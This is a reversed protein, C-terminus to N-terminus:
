EKIKIQTTLRITTKSLLLTTSDEITIGPGVPIYGERKCSQSVLDYVSNLESYDTIETNMTYYYGEELTYTELKELGSNNEKTFLCLKQSQKILLTYFQKEYYSYDTNYKYIFDYFYKEHKLISMDEDIVYLLRKPQYVVQSSTSLNTSFQNKLENMKEVQDTLKDIEQKLQKTTRDLIDILNNNKKEHIYGSIETISVGINRLTMIYELTDIENFSYLRYGNKDKHHPKLLGKKEYFRIQSTTLSMLRAVEGITLLTRM